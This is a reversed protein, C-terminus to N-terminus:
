AARAPAVHPERVQSVEMNSAGLRDFLVKIRNAGKTKVVKGVFGDMPGGDCVQVMEGKEPKWPAIYTEDFLGFVESVVLDRIDKRALVAARREGATRAIWIFGVVGEVSSVDYLSRDDPVEVFAYGPFYPRLKRRPERTVHDWATRSPYFCTFEAERLSAMARKEQRTATRIIFWQPGKPQAPKPPEITM